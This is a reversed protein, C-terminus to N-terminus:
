IEEGVDKLGELVEDIDVVGLKAAADEAGLEYGWRYVYELRRKEDEAMEFAKEAMGAEKGRQYADDLAQKM